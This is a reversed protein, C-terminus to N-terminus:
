EREFSPGRPFILRDNSVSIPPPPPQQRAQQGSSAIRLSSARLCFRSSFSRRSITHSDPGRQLMVRQHARHFRQGYPGYYRDWPPRRRAPRTRRRARAAAYHGADREGQRFRLRREASSCERNRPCPSCLVGRPSRVTGPPSCQPRSSPGPLGPPLAVSRASASSPERGIPSRTRIGAPGALPGRRPVRRFRSPRVNM